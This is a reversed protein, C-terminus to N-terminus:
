LAHVHIQILNKILFTLHRFVYMSLKISFEMKKFVLVM